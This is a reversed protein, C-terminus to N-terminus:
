NGQNIPHCKQIFLPKLNTLKFHNLDIKSNKKQSVLKVAMVNPNWPERLQWLVQKQPPLNVWKIVTFIPLDTFRLAGWFQVSMTVLMKGEVSAGQWISSTGLRYLFPSWTTPKFYLPATAWRDLSHFYVLIDRTRRGARAFKLLTFYLNIGNLDDTARLANSRRNWAVTGTDAFATGDGAEDELVEQL